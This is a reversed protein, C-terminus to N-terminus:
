HLLAVPTGDPWLTRARDERVEGGAVVLRRIDRSETDYLVVEGTVSHGDLETCLERLDEALDGPDYPSHSWPVVRNCSIVTTVGEDTENDKSTVLLMVGPDDFRPPDGPVFRSKKIERWKLAPEIVLEGRVQIRASM